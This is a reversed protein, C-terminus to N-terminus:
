SEREKVTNTAQDFVLGPVPEVYDEHLVMKSIFIGMERVNIGNRGGLDVVVLEPQNDVRGEYICLTYRASARSIRANVVDGPQMDGKLREEILGDIHSLNVLIGMDDGIYEEELLEDIRGIESRLRIQVEELIKRSM